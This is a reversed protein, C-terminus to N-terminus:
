RDGHSTTGFGYLVWCFAVVLAPAWLVIAGVAVLARKWPRVDSCTDLAVLAMFLGFALYWIALIVPPSV